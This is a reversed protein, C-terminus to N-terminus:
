YKKIPAKSNKERMRRPISTKMFFNLMKIQLDKPLATKKKESEM